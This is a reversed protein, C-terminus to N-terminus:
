SDGLVCPANGCTKGVSRIVDVCCHEDDSVGCLCKSGCWNPCCVNLFRTGTRCVENSNSPDAAITGSFKTRKSVCTDNVLQIPAKMVKYCVKSDYIRVKNFKTDVAKKIWAGATKCHAILVDFVRVGRPGSLGRTPKLAIGTTSYFIESKRLTVFASAASFVIGNRGSHLVRVNELFTYFSQAIYIGDHTSNTVTVNEVRTYYSWRSGRGTIRIAEDRTKMVKVGRILAYNSLELRVANTFKYNADITLNVITVRGMKWVKIMSENTKTRGKLVAGNGQICTGSSMEIASDIHYESGSSLEVVGGGFWATLTSLLSTITPGYDFNAGSNQPSDIIFRHQSNCAQENYTTNFAYEDDAGLDISQHMWDGTRDPQSLAVVVLTFSYLIIITSLPM